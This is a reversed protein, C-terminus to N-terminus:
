IKKKEKLSVSYNDFILCRKIVYKKTGKSKKETRGNSM